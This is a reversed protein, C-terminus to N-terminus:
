SLKADDRETPLPLEITCALGDEHYRRRVTAGPIAHEILQSGLGATPSEPKASGTERWLLRLLRHGDSGSLEWSVGVEGDPLSLAGYKAANTALEHLVLGFPTALDASLSVAPGEVHLRRAVDSAYPQLQVRTLAALDAGQWDSQVLLGHSNALAVLRGSFREVFEEPSASTVQTQHAIAQV